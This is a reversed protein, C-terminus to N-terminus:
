VQMGLVRHEVASGSERIQHGLGLPQVHGRDRHGIVAIEVPGVVEEGRRTCRVDLRDDTQLTVVCGLAVGLTTGEVETTAEDLACGLIGTGTLALAVVGVHGQPGLVRRTM